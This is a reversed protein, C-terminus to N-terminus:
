VHCYRQMDKNLTQLSTVFTPRVACKFRARCVASCVQTCDKLEQESMMGQSQAESNVNSLLTSPATCTSSSTEDSHRM